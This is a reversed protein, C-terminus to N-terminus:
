NTHVTLILVVSGKRVVEPIEYSLSGSVKRGTVMKILRHKIRINNCRKRVFDVGMHVDFFSSKRLHAYKPGLIAYVPLLGSSPIHQLPLPCVPQCFCFTWIRQGWATIDPYYTRKSYGVNIIKRGSEFTSYISLCDCYRM